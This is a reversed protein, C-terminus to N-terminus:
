IALGVVPYNALFAPTQGAPFNTPFAGIAAAFQFGSGIAFGAAASSGLINARLTTGPYSRVTIAGTPQFCVWIVEGEVASFSVATTKVGVTSSPIPGADTGAIIAGPYNGEALSRYVALRLNNAVATAVDCKVSTFNLNSPIQIPLAYINGAVTALTGAAAANAAPTLIRGAAPSKAAGSRSITVDGTGADPGTSVLSIGAGALVRRIVAEGPTSADLDQRKVSEDLVQTGRILPM